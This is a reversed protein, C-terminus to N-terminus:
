QIGQTGVPENSLGRAMQSYVGKELKTLDGEGGKKLGQAFTHLLGPIIILLHALGSRCMRDPRRPAIVTERDSNRRAKRVVGENKRAAIVGQM